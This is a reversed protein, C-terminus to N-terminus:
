LYIVQTLGRLTFGADNSYWLKFSLIEARQNTVLFVCFVQGLKPTLHSKNHQCSFIISLIIQCGLYIFIFIRKM